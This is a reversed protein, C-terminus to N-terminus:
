SRENGVNECIVCFGRTRTLDDAHRIICQIGNESRIAITLKHMHEEITDAAKSLLDPHDTVFAQWEGEMKRNM